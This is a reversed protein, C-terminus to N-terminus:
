PEVLCVAAHVTDSRGCVRDSHWCFVHSTMGCYNMCDVIFLSETSEECLQTNLVLKREKKEEYFVNAIDKLNM